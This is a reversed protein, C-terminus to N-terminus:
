KKSRPKPSTLARRGRLEVIKGDRWVYIPFGLRVHEAIAKKVAVKFAIEARKEIPLRLVAKSPKTM